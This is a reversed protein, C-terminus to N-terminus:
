LDPKPFIPRHHRWSLGAGVLPNDAIWAAELYLRDLEAAVTDNGLKLRLWHQNRVNEDDVWANSGDPEVHNYGRRNAYEFIDSLGRIAYLVTIPDWSPRPDGHACYIYAARVPDGPPGEAVLRDGSMVSQGLDAGSFVMRGPWNNIVHATTAPDDAYFNFEHGSPYRGGMVVLESVKAAILDPGPLDSHADAPSDLLGALNHLFALSVISVSGDESAALAQRYLAVPDHAKHAEGWPLSGASWHRAIKSAFEGLSFHHADFFSDNTLPRRAGIPTHPHDYHSLIASAALVSYTSHSNLNVALLKVDPSTAALLLAAADDCNRFIDTDLILNKRAAVTQFLLAAVLAVTTIMAHPSPPRIM